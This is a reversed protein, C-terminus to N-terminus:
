GNSTSSVAATGTNGGGTARVWPMLWPLPEARFRIYTGGRRTVGARAIAYGRGSTYPHDVLAGLPRGVAAITVAAPLATRLWLTAEGDRTFIAAERTSMGLELCRAGARVGLGGLPDGEERVVVGCRLFRPMAGNAVCRMAERALDDARSPILRPPPGGLWARWVNDPRMSGALVDLDLKEAICADLVLPSVRDIMSGAQDRFMAALRDSVEQGLEDIAEVLRGEPGRRCREVVGPRAVADYRAAVAAQSHGLVAALGDPRDLPLARPVPPSVRRM